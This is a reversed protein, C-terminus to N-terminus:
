HYRKTHLKMGIHTGKFGLSKYFAIAEPRGATTTLQVIKCGRAKARAIAEGILQRGLGAGRHSRSIRVGEFQARWSGKFTLNPLYSVQVCGILEGDKEMVLIYHNPDVLIADFAAKYAALDM